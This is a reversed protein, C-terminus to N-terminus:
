RNGYNHYYVLISMVESLTLRSNYKIKSSKEAILRKKYEDEFEQMFDDIECFIKTLM